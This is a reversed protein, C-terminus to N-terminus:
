QLQVAASSLVAACTAKAVTRTREADCVGCGAVLTDILAELETRVAAPDPQTALNTGLMGDILSGTLLDRNAQVGFVTGAPSTFPFAGFFAQRLATSEVLQDCYELALKSIAVQHSSVFTGADNSGPLQQTLEDFTPVLSRDVGTLESMTDNIQDFDRLGVDARAVVSGDDPPATPVPETVINTNAGLVEFWVQFADLASGLNKAVITCLSSLHENTEDVTAQITRFSQSAVPALGNVAIRLGQVAFGPTTTVITPECFLYSYADFESVQFEVYTGPSTWQDLEFRLAFRPTGGAQYNALIEAGSLVRDYIALLRIQGRWPRNSSTENGVAFLYDPHWSVLLGPGLPDTDGTFEGNVFIRRGQAQDYTLVVHQLSAQARRDADATQLAPNGNQDNGAALSRNRFQYNYMVQGLMFNRQGTGNAYSVIRAPGEQDTNAPTVWAEISYQQTGNGSAIENYLKRSDTANAQAKGGTFELGGGSLWAVNGTLALHMSPSVGSTDYAITGEGTEFRYLAIAGTDTRGSEMQQASFLRAADSSITGAPVSVQPAGAAGGPGFALVGWQEIAAQMTAADAACNSWCFHRDDILREVLRSNAPTIFDVKQNDLVARMATEPDPHSVHPFGPGAGVHCAVCYSRLLPYVSQEFPGTGAAAAAASAGASGSNGGGSGGPAVTSAPAPAASRSSGGSGGCASAALLAAACLAVTANRAV